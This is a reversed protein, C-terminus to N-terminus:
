ITSEEGAGGNILQRYRIGDGDSGTNEAQSKKVSTNVVLGLVVGLPSTCATWCALAGMYQTKISFWALVFSMFVYTTLLSLIYVNMKNTFGIKRM